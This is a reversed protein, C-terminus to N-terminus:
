HLMYWVHCRYNNYINYQITNHSHVKYVEQFIQEIRNKIMQFNINRNQPM